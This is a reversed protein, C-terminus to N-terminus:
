SKHNNVQIQMNNSLALLAADREEQNSRGKNLKAMKSLEAHTIKKDRGRWSKPLPAVCIVHAHSPLRKLERELLEAIDKGRQENRGQARGKASIVMPSDKLTWHWNSKNMWGAEVVILTHHKEYISFRIREKLVDLLDSLYYSALEMGRTESDYIAVGSKDVDPDIGIVIRCNM